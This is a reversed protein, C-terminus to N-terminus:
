RTDNMTFANCTHYGCVLKTQIIINHKNTHYCRNDRIYIYAREKRVWVGVFNAAIAVRQHVSFMKTNDEDFLLPWTM